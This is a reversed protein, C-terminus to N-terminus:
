RDVFTAKVVKSNAIYPVFLIVTALVLADRELLLVSIFGGEPYFYNNTLADAFVAVLLSLYLWTFMKPFSFNREVLQFFTYISVLLFIIILSMNINVYWYFGAGSAADDTEIANRLNDIELVQFDLDSYALYDQYGFYALAAMNALMVLAVLILGFGMKARPQDFSDTPPKVWKPKEWEPIEHGSDTKKTKAGDWAAEDWEAHKDMSTKRTATKNKNAVYKNIVSNQDTKMEANKLKAKKINKRISFFFSLVFIGGIIYQFYDIAQGM